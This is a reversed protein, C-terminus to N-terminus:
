GAAIRLCVWVVVLPFAFLGLNKGVQRQPRSLGIISLLVSLGLLGLSIMAPIGPRSLDVRVTGFSFEMPIALLVAFLGAVFGVISAKSYHTAATRRQQGALMVAWLALFGTVCVLVISGHLANGHQLYAGGGVYTGWVTLLLMIGGIVPWKSTVSTQHSRANTTSATDSTSEDRAVTDRAVTDRNSNDPSIKTPM